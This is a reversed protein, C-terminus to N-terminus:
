MVREINCPWLTLPTHYKYDVCAEGSPDDNLWRPSGGGRGREELSGCLGKICCLIRAHVFPRTELMKTFYMGIVDAHQEVQQHLWKIHRVCKKTARYQINIFIQMM